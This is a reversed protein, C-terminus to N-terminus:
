LKTSAKTGNLLESVNTQTELNKKKESISIPCMNQRELLQEKVTNKKKKCTNSICKINIIDNFHWHLSVITLKPVIHQNKRQSM